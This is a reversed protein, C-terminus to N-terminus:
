FTYALLAAVIWFFAWVLWFSRIVTRAYETSHDGRRDRRRADQMLLLLFGAVLSLPLFFLAALAYSKDNDAPGMDHLFFVLQVLFVSLVISLLIQMEPGVTFHRRIQKRDDRKVHTM